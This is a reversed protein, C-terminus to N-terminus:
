MLEFPSLVGCLRHYEDEVLWLREEDAPEQRLLDDIEQKLSVVRADILRLKKAAADEITVSLLDQWNGGSRMYRALATESLLKWGAIPVPLFSFSHTLMLQRAYAVPQWPELIVPSKVMFDEVLQRPLQQHRM